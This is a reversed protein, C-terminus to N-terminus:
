ETYDWSIFDTELRSDIGHVLDYYNFVIGILCPNETMHDLAGRPTAVNDDRVKGVSCRQPLAKRRAQSDVDEHHIDLQPRLVRVTDVQHFLEHGDSAARLHDVDGAEDLVARAHVTGLVHVEQGLGNRLVVQVVREVASM